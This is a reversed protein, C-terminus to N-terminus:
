VVSKRDKELGVPLSKATSSCAGQTLTTVDSCKEMSNEEESFLVLSILGRSETKGATGAGCIASPQRSDHAPNSGLDAPPSPARQRHVALAPLFCRAGTATPGTKLQPFNAGVNESFAALFIFYLSGQFVSPPFFTFYGGRACMLRHQLHTAEGGASLEKQLGTEVLCKSQTYM